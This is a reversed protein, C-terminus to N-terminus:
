ADFDAAVAEDGLTVDQNLALMRDEEQAADGLSVVVGDKELLRKIVLNARRRLAGAEDM